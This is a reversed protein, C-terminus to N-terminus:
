RGKLDINVWLDWEIRPIFPLGVPGKAIRAKGREKQLDFEAVIEDNPGYAVVGPITRELRGFPTEVIVNRDQSVRHRHHVKFVVTVTGASPRFTTLDFTVNKASASKVVVSGENGQAYKRLQTAADDLLKKAPPITTLDPFDLTVKPAQASAATAFLFTAAFLSIMIQRNM